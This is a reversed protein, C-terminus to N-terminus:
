VDSGRSETSLLSCLDPAARCTREQAQDATLGAVEQLSYFASWVCTREADIEKAFKTCIPLVESLAGNRSGFAVAGSLCATQVDDEFDAEACWQLYQEVSQRGEVDEYATFVLCERALNDELGVCYQGPHNRLPSVPQGEALAVAVSMMVGGVCQAPASPRDPLEENPLLECLRLSGEADGPYRSWLVHGFGHYCNGLMEITNGNEPPYTNCVEYLLLALEQDSKRDHKEGLFMAVGDLYGYSCEPYAYSMLEDDPTNVGAGHAISHSPVHCDSFRPELEMTELMVERAVKPGFSAAMELFIPDACDGAAIRVADRDGPSVGSQDVCAAILAAAERSKDAVPPPAVDPRVAMVMVAIGIVALAVAGFRRVLIRTRAPM